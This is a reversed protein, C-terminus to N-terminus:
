ATKTVDAIFVKDIAEFSPLTIMSVKTEVNVPDTKKTTTIAVGTNVIAVNADTQGSMLDAEEPTTGFVTEGLTGEPLMTFVGNPVYKKHKGEEDIFMQDNVLISIGFKSKVYNGIMAPTVVGGQGTLVEKAIENNDMMNRITTTNTLARTINIGQARADMVWDMIDKGIDATKDSWPKTSVLKNGEPMGYDYELNMGNAKVAIKGQTLLQMRLREEQSEAGDLLNKEDAFIKQTVLDIYEQNGTQMMTMLDQRDKEKILMGEKFFPMDTKLTELGVRDRLTVRTDFASPKIVVPLGGKGKIFSLELGLQKTRPFLTEGLPMVEGKQAEEYYGKINDATVIDFITKM